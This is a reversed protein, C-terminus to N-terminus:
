GHEGSRPSRRMKKIESRRRKAELRRQKSAATPRTKKRPKPREAAMQIFEVLRQVAERRNQEQTRYRRAEIILVGDSTMRKGALRYLRERVDEPLSPSNQVDFRLKVATAVKNVNQGGPGSARAFDLQIENDDIAIDNTIEIMGQYIILWGPHSSWM